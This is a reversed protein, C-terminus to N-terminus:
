KSYIVLSNGNSYYERYGNQKLLAILNEYGNKNKDTAYNTYDGVSTPNLVVYESELLHKRSCYRVDYLTERQSLETTYFTTAAITASQPIAHLAEHINEYYAHHHLVRNPYSIGKPVILIGFCVACALSAAFLSVSRGRKWDALNLLSLYLLFAFSGFTYQFFINHQYQYDSLLNILVYPILLLYREYRRTLLPLGLLPGLTVAIFSIKEADTCEYLAKMPHLFVSKVVTLLSSSGDYMLNKYRNTMVGDGSNALYDTVFYFWIISAALLALGTLLIRLDFKQFRLLAKVVLWLGIVAVYVAADEKVMLTLAATIAALLLNKRDVSYFLWLILPTLFCNEHIDYSAGGAFAPYLLLLSCLLMRQSGSLGHHAGLKWLPIVASTMVAAQAVQLTVPYPILCYIPLLLYYIPSVHVAFHSLLGDREVTTLPLGIEKMNHFMQSFIGFDYTPTGFVYIRCATWVSVFLFFILSLGLTLRAYIKHSKMPKAATEGDHNHGRIGYVLLALLILGCASGFAWSECAQLATFTLAGFVAFLSWREAQKPIRPLLCLLVSLTCTIAVVRLFSMQALGDLTALSRLEKPLLWYEFLVASLWALLVHRIFDSFHIHPKYQLM